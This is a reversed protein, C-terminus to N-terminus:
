LSVPPDDAQVHASLEFEEYPTTTLYLLLYVWRSLHQYSVQIFYKVFLFPIRTFSRHSFLNVVLIIHTEITDMGDM